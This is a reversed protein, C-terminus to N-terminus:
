PKAPLRAEISKLRENMEQVLQELRDIKSDEGNQHPAGPEETGEGAEETEPHPTAKPAPKKLSEIQQKIMPAVEISLDDQKLLAELAPIASADGRSGLAFIATFRIQSHNEPLYSAIQSTIEKNDKQLKALSSIAAQRSDLDKGPKSWALLLPVAKDDGLSGLGRLSANRLFGDPSESDLMATLTEFANTTKMRGLAQLAAGRARWSSDARAVSELKSITASDDKFNGLAQVIQNRIWPEKASNLTDLLQKSAAPTGLEGLSRAAVIRVGYAKDNRLRDGLAAAVDDEKKLKGLETAADARDAVETAHTLQYLWEKKEKKFSISKLVQNGKDFLVMEPVSESPFSFTESAKAVVIPYLRSGIANTIEVELPVRFIGVRGEVKQVQKVTLNLQKKAEDYAYSVEFKPAGAGYIWQDFFQDVNTHTAEEIAKTLDATVVNKGRNLELYHKLGAYFKQSGLQQRLMYLVWGGKNYANGDFESSDDFDHRVIPKAYLNRSAFWFRSADWRDYDAEDKGFQQEIWITEMFTAFGENLWINSWDKCTVLDGFWQHGLEHSILGDEGELYELELQPHRLSGATNTTASSNEMGGAVFDDVMAQAYKEWPYDVGLTNSFHELMAPTRGYDPSLRDGRDKPAYYTVPINRWIDKVEAFEGAVVTFLYTSSPLSERWIWTKQGNGADTVSQLKGNSVTLWNAPVTVVTETTLRANPYDYTPLYYRTDESEGQTWIQKPRNPYNIDPLIFYLGKKPQGEYKIEIDFKEGPKAARSLFVNLKADTTDFKAATKNVTVTQIQLGVSDFSIQDTAPQLITVTHTVDGIVRRRDLDFRLVVKSHQLDYNKSRAYPEDSKAPISCLLMLLFVCCMKVLGLLSTQQPSKSLNM